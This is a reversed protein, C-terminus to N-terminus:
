KPSAVLIESTIGFATVSHQYEIHWQSTDLYDLLCIPWCGGVLQPRLRFLGKWLWSVARSVPKQGEGLSVLCLRSEKSPSLLGHASTLVTRIDPPSLLDLVFNAVFRDYLGNNEPGALEIKDAPSLHVQARDQWQGLRERALKVMTSSVDTGVYHAETPLHSTLLQQAFRGTGCGFEFVNQALEFSAHALLDATAADEYFGQKDQWAGFRDYFSKAQAPTLTPM